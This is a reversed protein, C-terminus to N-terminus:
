QKRRALVVDIKDSLLKRFDQRPQRRIESEEQRGGEDEASAKRGSIRLSDFQSSRTASRSPRESEVIDNPIGAAARNAKVLRYAKDLTLGPTENMEKHVDDAVDDWDSFKTRAEQVGLHGILQGVIKQTGELKKLFGDQSAELKKSLSQEISSSHNSLAEDVVEAMVDLLQRPTLSDVETTKAKAKRVPKEEEDNLKDLLAQVSKDEESDKSHASEELMKLRAEMQTSKSKEQELLAATESLKQV